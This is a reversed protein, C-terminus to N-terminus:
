VRHFDKGSGILAFGSTRRNPQQNAVFVLAALVVAVDALGEAGAVGVVRVRLFEACAIRAAAAARRRPQCGGDDTGAGDGFFPQGLM